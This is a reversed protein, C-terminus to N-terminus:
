SLASFYPYLLTNQLLSVSSWLNRNPNHTICRNRASSISSRKDAYTMDTNIKCNSFKKACVLSSKSNKGFSEVSVIKKM